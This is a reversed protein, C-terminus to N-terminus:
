KDNDSFTLGYEDKLVRKVYPSLKGLKELQKYAEEFKKLEYEDIIELAM